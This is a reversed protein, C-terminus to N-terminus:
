LITMVLGCEGPQLDPDDNIPVGRFAIGLIPLQDDWSEAQLALIGRPDNRDLWDEYAALDVANVLLYDIKVSTLGLVAGVRMMEARWKKCCAPLPEDTLYVLM